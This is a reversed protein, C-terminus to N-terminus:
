KNTKRCLFSLGHLINCVINGIANIVNFVFEFVKNGWVMPKLYPYIYIFFIVLFYILRAFSIWFLFYSTPNVNVREFIHIITMASQIIFFLFITMFFISDLSIVFHLKNKLLLFAFLFGAIALLTVKIWNDSIGNKHYFWIYFLLDALLIIKFLWHNNIGKLYFFDTIIEFVLALLTFFFFYKQQIVLYKFCYLGLFTPILISTSSLIYVLM